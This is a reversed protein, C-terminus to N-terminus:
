PKVELHQFGDQGGPSGTRGPTRSAPAQRASQGGDFLGGFSFGGARKIAVVGLLAIVLFLARRLNRRPLLDWYSREPPPDPNPHRSPL